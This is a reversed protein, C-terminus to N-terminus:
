RIDFNIHLAFPLCVIFFVLFIEVNIKFFLFLSIGMFSVEFWVPIIIFAIWILFPFDLFQLKKIKCKSKIILMHFNYFLYFFEFWCVPSYVVSCRHVDNCYCFLIFRRTRTVAKTAHTVASITQRKSVPCRGTKWIDM